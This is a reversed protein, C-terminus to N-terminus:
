SRTDAKGRAPPRRARLGPLFAPVRARYDRYVEGLDAALDREEFITAIPVYVTVAVAFVVQGLTMHPTIWPVAMWGLGIPHRVLAYLWRACFPAPRHSAGIAHDWAQRLGFFGFHGVQFTAAAMMGWVALAFAWIAWVLPGDQVQWVTIPVPQWAWVLAATALATVHLYTARELHPPVLRTWRAKFWRRAMVSHLLGWALVLTADTAIAAGVPGPPGDAIGKPVGVGALFGVLYAITAMGLLYATGAYALSLTRRIM